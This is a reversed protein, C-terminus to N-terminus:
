ASLVRRRIHCIGNSGACGLRLGGALRCGPSSCRHASRLRPSSCRHSALMTCCWNSKAHSSSAAKRPTDSTLKRPTEGITRAGGPM